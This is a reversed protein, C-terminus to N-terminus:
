NSWTRGCLLCITYSFAVERCLEFMIIFHTGNAGGGGGGVSFPFPSDSSYPLMRHLRCKTREERIQVNQLGAWSAPIYRLTEVQHIQTDTITDPDADLLTEALEELQECLEGKM